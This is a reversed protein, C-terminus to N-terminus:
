SRAGEGLRDFADELDGRCLGLPSDTLAKRLRATLGDTYPGAGKSVPWGGLVWMAARADGVALYGLAIDYDFVLTDSLVVARRVKDYSIDIGAERCVKLPYWLSSRSCYGGYLRDEVVAKPLVPGEHALLHLLEVARTSSLQRGDIRLAGTLCVRHRHGPVDSSVGDRDDRGTRGPVTSLTSSSMVGM